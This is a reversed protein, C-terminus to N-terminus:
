PTVVLPPKSLLCTSESLVEVTSKAKILIRNVVFATTHKLKINFWACRILSSFDFRDIFNQRQSLSM